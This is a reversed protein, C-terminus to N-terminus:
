REWRFEEMARNFRETEEESDSHIEACLPKRLDVTLIGLASKGDVAYSGITVDIDSEFKMTVGTFRNVKEVSDLKITIKKDTETEEERWKLDTFRIFIILM